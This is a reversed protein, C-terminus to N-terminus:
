LISLLTGLAIMGGLFAFTGSFGLFEYFIGALAPGVMDGVGLAMEVYGIYKEKDHEM